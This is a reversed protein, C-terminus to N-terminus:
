ILFLSVINEIIVFKGLKPDTTSTHSTTKSKDKIDDM